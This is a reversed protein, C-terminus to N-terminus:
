ISMWTSAAACILLPRGRQWAGAQPGNWPRAQAHWSSRARRVTISSCCFQWNHLARMLRAAHPLSSSTPLALLMLFPPQAVDGAGNAGVLLCRSGRPLTLSIDSLIPRHGAYAYSLSRIIVADELSEATPGEVQVAVSPADAAPRAVM